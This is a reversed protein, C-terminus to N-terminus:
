IYKYLFIYLKYLLVFNALRRRFDVNGYIKGIEGSWLKKCISANM